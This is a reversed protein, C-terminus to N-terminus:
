FLFILKFTSFYLKSIWVMKRNIVFKIQTAEGPMVMEKKEPLKMKAAIDFTKSFLQTQHTKTLPKERGGEDKTLM